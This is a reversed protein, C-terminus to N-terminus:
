NCFLKYFSVESNIKTTKNYNKDVNDEEDESSMLFCAHHDYNSINNLDSSKLISSPNYNWSDPSLNFRYNFHKEDDETDSEDDGM